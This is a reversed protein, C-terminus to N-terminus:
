PLYNPIRDLVLGMSDLMPTQGKIMVDGSAIATFTDLKANLFANAVRMDKMFLCAMPRDSEGAVPTIVRNNIRLTVAPGDPLIKLLVDGDQLHAVAHRGVPDLSAIEPVARAATNLTLHTNVACYTEDKLLDDTPKLYYELKKTLHDFDGNLFPIKTFGKLPIPFGKGDMM